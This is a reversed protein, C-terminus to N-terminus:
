TNIVEGIKSHDIQIINNGLDTHMDIFQAGWLTDGLDYIYQAFVNQALNEELGNCSVIVRENLSKLQEQNVGFLPSEKTIPHVVLLSLAFLPTHERELELKVPRRLKHGERTVVDKIVYVSVRADVIQSERQNSIRFQLCPIGDRLNIVMKESFKIRAQPRSFKAFMLGSGMAVAILGIFAEISILIHAYQTTPEMGGYGITAMTQVSFSFAQLFSNPDKANICNDGLLYLVAFISNALTYSIAMIMMLKPWSVKVLYFYLDRFVSKELGVHKFRYKSKVMVLYPM